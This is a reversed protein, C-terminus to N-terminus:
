LVQVLRRDSARKEDSYTTRHAGEMHRSRRTCVEDITVQPCDSSVAWQWQESSVAWM